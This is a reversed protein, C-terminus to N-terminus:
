QLKSDKTDIYQLTSKEVKQSSNQIQVVILIDYFAAREQVAAAL